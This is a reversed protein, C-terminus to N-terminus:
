IDTHSGTNSSIQVGSPLTIRVQTVSLSKKKIPFYEEEPNPSNAFLHEAPSALQM